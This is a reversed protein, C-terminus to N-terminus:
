SALLRQLAEPDVELQDVDIHEVTGDKRIVTVEMTAEMTVTATAGDDEPTVTEAFESM